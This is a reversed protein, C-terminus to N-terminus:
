DVYFYPFINKATKIEVNNKLEKKTVLLYGSGGGEIEIEYINPKCVFLLVSVFNHNSITLCGMMIVYILLGVYNNFVSGIIPMLQLIFNVIRGYSPKFSKIEINEKPVYKKINRHFVAYYLLILIVNMVVFLKAFLSLTGNSAFNYGYWCLFFPSFM